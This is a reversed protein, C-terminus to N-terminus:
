PGSTGSAGSAGAPTNAVVAAQMTAVNANIQAALATEATADGANQAVQASLSTLLTEISSEVTTEATVADIVSQLTASVMTYEKAQNTAIISLSNSIIDLKELLREWQYYDSM